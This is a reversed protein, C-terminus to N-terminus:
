YNDNTINSAHQAFCELNKKTEYGSVRVDVGELKEM